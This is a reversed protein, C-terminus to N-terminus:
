ITVQIVLPSDESERKKDKFAGTFISEIGFGCKSFLIRSSNYLTNGSSPWTINCFYGWVRHVEGKEWLLSNKARLYEEM